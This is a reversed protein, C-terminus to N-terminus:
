KSDLKIKYPDAYHFIIEPFGDPIIKQLFPTPDNDEAIWYCEVLNKLEEDPDFRNFTM